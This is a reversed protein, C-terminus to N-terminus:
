ISDKIVSNSDIELENAVSKYNATITFTRRLKDITWAMIRGTPLWKKKLYVQHNICTINIQTAYMETVVPYSQNRTSGKIGSTVTNVSQGVRQPLNILVSWTYLASSHPAEFVITCWM